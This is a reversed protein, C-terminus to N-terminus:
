DHIPAEPMSFATALPSASIAPTAPASLMSHLPMLNHKVTGPEAAEPVQYSAFPYDSMPRDVYVPQFRRDAYGPWRRLARSGLRSNYLPRPGQIPMNAELDDSGEMNLSRAVPTPAKSTVQLRVRYRKWFAIRYCTLGQWQAANSVV